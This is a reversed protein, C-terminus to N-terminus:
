IIEEAIKAKAEREEPTFTFIYNHNLGSATIFQHEIKQNKLRESYKLIDPYLIDRTSAFLIIEGLAENSGYIPSVTPNTVARKDAWMKGLAKLGYLGLVPDDKEIPLIDKNNM